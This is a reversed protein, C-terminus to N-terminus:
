MVPMWLPEVLCCSEGDSEGFVRSDDSEDNDVHFGEEKDCYSGVNHVFINVIGDVIRYKRWQEERTEWCAWLLWELRTM